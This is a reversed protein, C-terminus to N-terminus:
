SISNSEKNNPGGGHGGRPKIFYERSSFPLSAACSEPITGYRTRRKVVGNPPEVTALFPLSLQPPCLSRNRWLLKVFESWDRSTGLLVCSPLHPHCAAYRLFCHISDGPPSTVHDVSLYQYLLCMHVTDVARAESNM